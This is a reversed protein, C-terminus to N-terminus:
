DFLPHAEDANPEWDVSAPFSFIPYKSLDGDSSRKGEGRVAMDAADEPDTAQVIYEMHYPYSMSVAYPQELSVLKWLKIKGEEENFEFDYVFKHEYNFRNKSADTYRYDTYIEIITNRWDKDDILHSSDLVERADHSTVLCGRDQADTILDQIDTLFFFPLDSGGWKTPSFSEADMEDIDYIEYVCDDCVIDGDIDRTDEQAFTIGCSVCKYNSSEAENDLRENETISVGIEYPSAGNEFGAEIFTEYREILEEAEAKSHGTNMLYSHTDLELVEYDSYETLKHNDESMLLVSRGFTDAMDFDKAPTPKNPKNKKSDLYEYPTWNLSEGLPKDYGVTEEASYTPPSSDNEVIIDQYESFDFGETHLINQVALDAAEDESIADVNTWAVFYQFVLGVNYSNTEEAAWEDEFTLRNIVAEELEEPPQIGRSRLLGAMIELEMDWGIEDAYELQMQTEELTLLLATRAEQSDGAPHQSLMRNVLEHATDFDLHNHTTEMVAESLKRLTIKSGHKSPRRFHAGTIYSQMEEDSIWRGGEDRPQEPNYAEFTEAEEEQLYKERLYEAEESTRYDDELKQPLDARGIGYDDMVEGYEEELQADTLLELIIYEVDGYDDASAEFTEAEKLSNRMGVCFDPHSEYLYFEVEEDHEASSLTEDNQKSQHAVAAEADFGCYPCVGYVEDM